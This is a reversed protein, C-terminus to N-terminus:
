FTRESGNIETAPTVFANLDDADLVIPTHHSTVVNRVCETTDPYHSIGPGVALVTKGEVLKGVRELARTSITGAYTEELPETMVEPHFGAVTPLVSKATAVTSLGAGVRLAAIGAM